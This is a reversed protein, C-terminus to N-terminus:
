PEISINDQTVNAGGQINLPSPPNPTAYRIKLWDLTATGSIKIEKWNGIAPLTLNGDNNTDGGCEDDKISTFVIPQTENGVAFLTGEVILSNWPDTFFKIIVGPSITSTVNPQIDLNSPLIYPLNAFLFPSYVM